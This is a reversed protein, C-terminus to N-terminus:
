EQPKRVFHLAPKDQAALADGEALLRIEWDRGHREQLYDLLHLRGHRLHQEPYLGALATPPVGLEAEVAYVPRVNVVLEKRSFRVVIDLLADVRGKRVKNHGIIDLMLALDAPEDPPTRTFDVQLFRVQPLGHREALLTGLRVIDPGYDLARVERAGLLAALFAHLGVNSGLDTVSKGRFDLRCLSHVLPDDVEAPNRGSLLTEVQEVPRWLAERGLRDLIAAIENVTADPPM